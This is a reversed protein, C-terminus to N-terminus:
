FVVLIKALGSEFRGLSLAICTEKALTDFAPRRILYMVNSIFSSKSVRLQEVCHAMLVCTFGVLLQLILCVENQKYEM